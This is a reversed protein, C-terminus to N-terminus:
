PRTGCFPHSSQASLEADPANSSQSPLAALVDASLVCADAGEALLTQLTDIYRQRDGEKAGLWGDGAASVARALERSKTAPNEALFTRVLDAYGAKAYEILLEDLSSWFGVWLDADAFSGSFFRREHQHWRDRRARHRDNHRSRISM